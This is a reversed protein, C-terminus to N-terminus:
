VEDAKKEAKTEAKASAKTKTVTKPTAKDTVKEEPKVEAVFKGAKRIDEYREKSVEFEEGINRYKKTVKDEFPSIVKVKM